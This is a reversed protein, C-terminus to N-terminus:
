KFIGLKLSVSYTIQDNISKIIKIRRISMVVDNFVSRVAANFTYRKKKLAIMKYEFITPNFTPLSKSSISSLLRRSLTIRTMSLAFMDDSSSRTGPNASAINGLDRDLQTSLYDKNSHHRSARNPIFLGPRYRYYDKLYIVITM